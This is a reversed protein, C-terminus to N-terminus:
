RISNQNQLSYWAEGLRGNTNSVTVGRHVSLRHTATARKLHTEAAGPRVWFRPEVETFRHGDSWAWCTGLVCSSMCPSMSFPLANLMVCADNDLSSELPSAACMYTVFNANVM